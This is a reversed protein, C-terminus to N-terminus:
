RMVGEISQISWRCPVAPAGMHGSIDLITLMRMTSWDPSAPPTKGANQYPDPGVDSVALEITSTRGTLRVTPFTWVVGQADTMCVFLRQDPAASAIVVLAHLSSLADEPLMFAVGSTTGKDRTYAVEFSTSSATGPVIEIGDRIAAWGSEASVAPVMWGRSTAILPASVAPTPPAAAAKRPTEVTPHHPSTSPTCGALSTILALLLTPALTRPM